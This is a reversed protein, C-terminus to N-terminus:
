AHKMEEKSRTERNFLVVFGALIIVTIINIIASASFQGTIRYFGSPNFLNYSFTALTSQYFLFAQFLYFQNFAFIARIIVAPLLLPMLLPLTIYRFTQWINAGDLAAAEFVDRPIMKLGASSALMILPFGYWLAPLMLVLFWLSPTNQWGILFNLPFSEGYKQAALNLFGIEPVFINLWLLAGIMEPIAWPLIFFAQWFKGFRVGKQHLLLALGLGLLTQLIISIGAWLINFILIGNSTIFHLMLSYNSFGTYQVQNSRFPFEVDAPAVQGTIGGIFERWIGGQFGDRISASNFDTLSVVIQFIFPFLTLLAFAILGPVLWPIAQRTERPKYITKERTKRDKWWKIVSQWLQSIGESASLSLPVTLTLIYQPWKTPWLLLFFIAIGLWLAYVREKKWLPAAGFCAFIAIFLDTVIVFVDPHWLAPSMTIWVFPQWLPFNASQVESAGSSYTAHYFVSEKLRGIPDPWLFPDAAFFIVIAFIGWLLARQYFRPLSQNQKEELFWDILIAIAVLCYIYKSAATLGLFLASFILWGIEQKKKFQLYAFVVVLSTLAPLAELMIQSVYKITFTHTALLLGALPNVLALLFVTIVGFVANITRAPTVLERPLSTNPGETTSADPTLDREPTSLLSLGMAIKALPPHEPRYNTELFGSWDSARILHAYEQGARLYDDEDFDIPLMGVARLRLTWALAAVFIVALIRLIIKKNM